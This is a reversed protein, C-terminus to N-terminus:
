RSQVLVPVPAFTHRINLMLVLINLLPFFLLILTELLIMELFSTIRHIETVVIM